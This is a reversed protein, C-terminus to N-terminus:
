GWFNFYRNIWEGFLLGLVCVTAGWPLRLREWLLVQVAAPFTILVIPVVTVWQNHTSDYHTTAKHCNDSFMVVADPCKEVMSGGPVGWGTITCSVGKFTYTDGDKCTPPAFTTSLWVTDGGCMNYDNAYVRICGGSSDGHDGCNTATQLNEATGGCDHNSGTWDYSNLGWSGSGCYGQGDWGYGQNTCGGNGYGTLNDCVKVGIKNLDDTADVNNLVLSKYGQCSGQFSVSAVGCNNSSDDFSWNCTSGNYSSGAPIKCASGTIFVNGPNCGAPLTTVWCDSSSDYHTNAQTCSSSFKVVANGCHEVHSGSGLGGGSITCKIGQFVYTSGDSCNTPKFCASLWASCGGDLNHGGVTHSCSGSQGSNCAIQNVIESFKWTEGVDLVGNNNVDGINHGTTNLVGKPTTLTPKAATGINDSIKLNTLASSGTNTVDFNYTIQGCANVVVSCPTKHVSIGGTGGGGTTRVLGADLTLNSQGATLTVASTVGTLQNAKSNITNDTGVGQKSYTYGTPAIFHVEYTGATLNSFLYHGTSDTTTTGLVQTGTADLLEVTVGAVVQGANAGNQLGTNAVDLFVYDGISCLQTQAISGFNMFLNSFDVESPQVGPSGVTGSGNISETITYRVNITSQAVALTVPAPAAQGFAWSQTSLLHGATDFIQEVATFTNNVSPNLGNFADVSVGSDYRNILQGATTSSVSYTFVVTQSVNPGSVGAAFSTFNVGSLGAADTDAVVFPASTIFDAIASGSSNLVDTDTVV